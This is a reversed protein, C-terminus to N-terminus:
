RASLAHIPATRTGNGDPRMRGPVNPRLPRRAKISFSRRAGCRTARSIIARMRVPKGTAPWGMFTGRHTGRWENETVICAEDASLIRRVRVTFDPFGEWDKRYREATHVPGVFPEPAGVVDNPPPGDAGNRMRTPTPPFSVAGGSRWGSENPQTGSRKTKPPSRWEKVCIRGRMGNNFWAIM